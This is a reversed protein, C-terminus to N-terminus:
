PQQKTTDIQQIIRLAASNYDAATDELIRFGGGPRGVYCTLKVGGPVPDVKQNIVGRDQLQKGLTDTSASPIANSSLGVTQVVPKTAPVDQQAVPSNSPALQWSGTPTLPPNVVPKADPIPEVKPNPNPALVAPSPPTPQTKDGTTLQGPTQTKGTEGMALPQPMGLPGQWTMGALTANNTSSSDAVGFQQSPAPNWGVSAKPTTTPQPMGPPTLVGHLPDAPQPTNVAPTQSCGPFIAAGLGFSAAMMASLWRRPPASQGSERKNAM